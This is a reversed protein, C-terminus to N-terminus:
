IALLKTSALSEKTFTFDKEQTEIEELSNIMIEKQTELSM